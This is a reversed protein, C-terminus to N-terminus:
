LLQSPAPLNVAGVNAFHPAEAGGVQILPQSPLFARASIRDRLAAVLCNDERSNRDRIRGLVRSAILRDGQFLFGLPAREVEAGRLPVSLVAM